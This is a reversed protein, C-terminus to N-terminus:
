PCLHVRAHQTLLASRFTNIHLRSMLGSYWDLSVDSAASSLQQYLSCSLARKQKELYDHVAKQLLRHQKVWQQPPTHVNVFGLFKYDQMFDLVRTSNDCEHM